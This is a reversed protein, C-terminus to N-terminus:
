VVTAEPDPDYPYLPPGDDATACSERGCAVVTNISPEDVNSAYSMDNVEPSPLVDDAVNMLAVVDDNAGPSREDVSEEDAVVVFDPGASPNSEEGCTPAKESDPLNVDDSKEVGDNLEPGSPKPRCRMAYKHAYMLDCRNLSFTENANLSTVGALPPSFTSRRLLRDWDVDNQREDDALSDASFLYM